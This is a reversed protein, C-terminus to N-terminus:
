VLLTGAPGSSWGLTRGTTCMLLMEAHSTIFLNQFGYVKRVLGVSLCFFDDSSHDSAYNMSGVSESYVHYEQVLGHNEQM